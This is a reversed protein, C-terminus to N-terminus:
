HVAQLECPPRTARAGSSPRQSSRGGMLGFRSCAHRQWRRGAGASLHRGRPRRRRRPRHKAPLPVSGHLGSPHSTHINFNPVCNPATGPKVVLYLGLVADDLKKLTIHSFPRSPLARPIRSNRNEKTKRSQNIGQYAKTSPGWCIRHAARGLRASSANRKVFFADACMLSCQERFM